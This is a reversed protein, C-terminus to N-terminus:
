RTAETVLLGASARQAYYTAAMPNPANGDIARSRTMPSLVMRNGLEIEGLRYPSFLNVADHGPRRATDRTRLGKAEATSM